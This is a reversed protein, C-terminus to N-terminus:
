QESFMQFNFTLRDISDKPLYCYPNNELKFNGQCQKHTTNENWAYGAKEMCSQTFQAIENGKAFKMGPFARQGQLECDAAKDRQDAFEYCGSLSSLALLLVAWKANKGM